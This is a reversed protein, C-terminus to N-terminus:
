RIGELVVNNIVHAPAGKKHLFACCCGLFVAKKYTLPLIHGTANEQQKVKYLPSGIQGGRMRFGLILKKLPIKQIKKSPCEMFSPFSLDKPDERLSFFTCQYLRLFHEDCVSFLALSRSLSLLRKHRARKRMQEFLICVVSQKCKITLYLHLM